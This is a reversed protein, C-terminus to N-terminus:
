SPPKGVRKRRFASLRVARRIVERWGFRLRLSWLTRKMMRKRRLSGTERNLAAVDNYIHFIYGHGGAKASLDVIPIGKLWLFYSLWLDDVFFAEPCKSAERHYDLLGDLRGVPLASGDAGQGITLGHYRYTHFSAAAHPQARFQETFTELMHPQYVLDDDALVLLEARDRAARGFSGLLKTGPGFDEPLRVIEVRGGFRDPDFPLRGPDGFRRYRAPICLLIKDAPVTQAVLSEICREINPMRPPITTLGVYIRPRQSASSAGDASSQAHIDETL